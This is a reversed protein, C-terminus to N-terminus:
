PWNCGSTPARGFRCISRCSISRGAELTPFLITRGGRGLARGRAAIRPPTRSPLRNLDSCTTIQVLNCLFRYRSYRTTLCDARGYPTTATPGHVERWLDVFGTDPIRDFHKMSFLRAASTDSGLACANLDGLLLVRDDRENSLSSLLADWFEDHPDNELPAYVGRLEIGSSPFGVACYRFPESIGVLNPRVEHPVRSGIAIGGRLGPPKPLSWHLWGSRRLHEILEESTGTM